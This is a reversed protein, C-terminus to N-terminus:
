EAHVPFQAGRLFISYRRYEMHRRRRQQVTLGLAAGVAAYAPNRRPALRDEAWCSCSPTRWAHTTTSMDISWLQAVSDSLWLV